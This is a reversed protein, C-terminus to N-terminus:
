DSQSFNILASVVGRASNLDSVSPKSLLSNSDVNTAQDFSLNYHNIYGLHENHGDDLDNIIVFTRGFPNNLQLNRLNNNSHSPVDPEEFNRYHRNITQGDEM